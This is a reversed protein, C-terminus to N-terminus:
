KQWITEGKRKNNNVNINWELYCPYEYQAISEETYEGQPAIFLRVDASKPFITKAPFVRSPNQQNFKPYNTAYTGTYTPAEENTGTLEFESM